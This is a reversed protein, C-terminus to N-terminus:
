NAQKSFSFSTVLEGNVHEAVTATTPTAVTSGNLLTMSFSHTSQRANTENTQSSLDNSFLEDDSLQATTTTTPTDIASSALASLEAAFFNWLHLFCYNALAPTTHLFVQAIRGARKTM